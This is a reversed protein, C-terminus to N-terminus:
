SRAKIDADAFVVIEDAPRLTALAALQNHIKQGTDTAIGAVIVETEPREATAAILRKLIAHGPDSEAELSFVLRWVPFKQRCLASWLRPLNDAGRVPIVAPATYTPVLPHRLGRRYHWVALTALAAVTLWGAVIASSIGVVVWYM